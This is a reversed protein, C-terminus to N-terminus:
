RRCNFTFLMLVGLPRPICGPFCVLPVQFDDMQFPSVDELGKMKPKSIKPPIPVFGM